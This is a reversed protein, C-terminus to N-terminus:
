SNDYMAWWKLVMGADSAQFRKLTVTKNGDYDTYGSGKSYSNYDPRLLFEGYTAQRTYEGDLNVFFYMIPYNYTSFYGVAYLFAPKEQLTIVAGAGTSPMTVTGTEDWGGGSGGSGNARQYM